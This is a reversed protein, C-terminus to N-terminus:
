IHLDHLCVIRRYNEPILGLIDLFPALMSGFGVIGGLRGSCTNVTTTTMIAIRLRKRAEAVPKEKIATARKVPSVITRMILKNIM